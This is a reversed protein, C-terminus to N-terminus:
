GLLSKRASTSSTVKYNGRSTRQVYGATAFEALRNRATKEEAASFAIASYVDVTSFTQGKRLNALYSAVENRLSM